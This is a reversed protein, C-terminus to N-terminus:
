DDAAEGSDEGLLEGKFETPVIRSDLGSEQLYRAFPDCYGHTVWVQEARTEAVTQNLGQWDVHDSLVFGRDVGRRRRTGRIQMWGSALGTSYNGFRRSWASGAASPPAVILAQRWDTGAEAAGVYTTTPLSVGAERYAGNLKEVAGHTFIPGLEPDIGSLVRQAKGLAYALLLSARGAEQNSRWWDNIENFVTAPDPWRYVPLGFTSETVFVDCVVPQFPQCTPDPQRKYDGSVVISRGGSAIRIQASGLIHGAPFFTVKVSGIQLPKGLPQFEISAERGMRIRLIEKGTDAALYLGSGDRAHDAHAHTILCKRVPKWPDVFFDGAECYLGNPTTKLLENMM